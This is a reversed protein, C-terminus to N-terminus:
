THVGVRSGSVAAEAEAAVKKFVQDVGGQGVGFFNAGGVGARLGRLAAAQRDAHALALKFVHLAVAVLGQADRDVQAVLPAIGRGAVKGAGGYLLGHLRSKVNGAKRGAIRHSAQGVLGVNGVVVGLQVKKVGPGHRGFLGGGQGQFALM